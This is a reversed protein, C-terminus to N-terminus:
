KGWSTRLAKCVARLTFELSERPVSEVFPGVAWALGRPISRTLSVSEVQMYLGGDREEYSWYTNQRWLFGHSEEASLTHESNTGAQEIEAIRTSRSTSYGQGPNLRGFGVDYTTDMVVTIVHKQRVRLVVQAQDGQQSLVQARIVQPAFIRPYGTFDRLLKDFDAGKAASVFATARWHHLMAGPLDAATSPTLREIVAEGNRIRGKNQGLTVGQQRDLRGEVGHVYADFGTVADAAPQEAPCPSVGALLAFVISFFKARKSRRRQMMGGGHERRRALAICLVEGLATQKEDQLEKRLLLKRRTRV